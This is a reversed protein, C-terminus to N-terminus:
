IHILSLVQMTDLIPKVFAETRDSQSCLIGIIVGFIISMLVSLGMLALTQMAPEWQGVLGWFLVAFLAFISLRLGSVGLVPLVLFAVILLWPSEILFDELTWYWDQIVGAILRTIWRYNKKM